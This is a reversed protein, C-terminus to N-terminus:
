PIAVANSYESTTQLGLNTATATLVVGSFKSGDLITVAPAVHGSTRTTVQLTRLFIKGGKRSADSSALNLYLDFAYKTNPRADFDFKVIFSKGSRTVSTIVPYNQLADADGPDNPTAPDSEGGAPRLDIGPEENDFIENVRFSNGPYSGDVGIGAGLNKTILNASGATGDGIKVGTVNRLEIGGLGNPQTSGDRGLGIVNSRILDQTALPNVGGALFIGFANNGSLHNGLIGVSTASSAIGNGLNPLATAGDPSLGITNNVLIINTLSAALRIGDLQNGSIVNPLGSAAGVQSGSGGGSFFIGYGNPNATVPGSLGATCGIWNGQITVAPTGIEIGSGPSNGGVSGGIVNGQGALTGGIANHLGSAVVIGATQLGLSGTSKEGSDSTGIFNGQVLNDHAEGTILVGAEGYTKGAITEARFINRQVATAGGILSHSANSDIKVGAYYNGQFHCGQVTTGAAAAGTINVGQSFEEITLGRVQCNAAQVLLGNSGTLANFGGQQYNTVEDGELYVAPLPSSGIFGEFEAQSVGDIITGAGTLAPLPTAPHLHLVPFNVETVFHPDGQPVEFEITTGKHTQAWLLAARLSGDGSDAGTTVFVTNKSDTAMATLGVTDQRTPDHQSHWTVAISKITNRPTNGITIVEAILDGSGGAALNLPWTGGIVQSTIEAGAAPKATTGANAYYRVVFQSDGSDGQALLTDPLSGANMVHILCTERVGEPARFTITEGAGTISLVKSGIFPGVRSPM